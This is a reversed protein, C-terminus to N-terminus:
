KENDFHPILQPLVSRAVLVLSSWIFRAPLRAWVTTAASSRCRSSGWRITAAVVIRKSYFIIRDLRPGRRRYCLLLPPLLSPPRCPLYSLMLAAACGSYQTAGTSYVAVYHWIATIMLGYFNRKIFLRTTFECFHPRREAEGVVNM